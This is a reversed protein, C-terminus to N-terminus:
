FRGVRGNCVEEHDELPRVDAAVFRDVVGGIEVDILIEGRWEIVRTISGKFLGARVKRKPEMWIEKVAM